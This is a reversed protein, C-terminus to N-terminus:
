DAIVKLVKFVEQLIDWGGIDDIILKYKRLSRNEYPEVPEPVGLWKESLFRGAVTGYCLLHIDNELCYKAYNKDAGNDLISYQEQATVVELDANM